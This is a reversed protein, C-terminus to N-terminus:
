TVMNKRKSGDSFSTLAQSKMSRVQATKIRLNASYVPITSSENARDIVPIDRLEPASSQCAYGPFVSTLESTRSPHQPLPCSMLPLPDPHSMLNRKVELSKGVVPPSLWGWDKKKNEGHSLNLSYYRSPSFM